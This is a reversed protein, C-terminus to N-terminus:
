LYAIFLIPVFFAINYAIQLILAHTSKLKTFVAFCLIAMMIVFCVRVLIKDVGDITSWVSLIALLLPLCAASIGAFVRHIKTREKGREPFFTCLIQAVCSIVLLQKFLIPLEYSPIFYSAFFILLLTLTVIFLLSYFISSSNKPAVHQSFTYQIGRPWKLVVFTLGAALLLVSLYGFHWTLDSLQM